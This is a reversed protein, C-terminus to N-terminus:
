GLLWGSSFVDGLGAFYGPRAFAIDYPFSLTEGAPLEANQPGQGGTVRMGDILVLEGRVITVDYSNNNAVDLTVSATETAKYADKDTVLTATVCNGTISAASQASAGDAASVNMPLGTLLLAACLLTSLLSAITKKMTCSEEKFLHNM